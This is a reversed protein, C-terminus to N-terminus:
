TSRQFYLPMQIDQTDTKTRAVGAPRTPSSSLKPHVERKVHVGQSTEKAEMGKELSKM